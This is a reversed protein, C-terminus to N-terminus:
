LLQRRLRVDVGNGAVRIDNGVRRGGHADRLFDAIRDHDLRGRAAAALAKAHRAVVALRAFTKGRALRLGLRTEAVIADEDLFEDLLRAVDFDLHQAICM